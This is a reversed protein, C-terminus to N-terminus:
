KVQNELWQKNERMTELTKEPVINQKKLSSLAGRLMAYGIGAVILGIVLPSLWVALWLWSSDMAWIGTGLGNVAAQVIALFGAYAVLGGGVAIGISRGTRALKETMELKALQIEQRVLLSAERTLEKALDGASRTEIDPRMRDQTVPPPNTHATGSPNRPDLVM